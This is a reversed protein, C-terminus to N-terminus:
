YSSLFTKCYRLIRRIPSAWRETPQYCVVKRVQLKSVPQSDLTIYHMSGLPIVSKGNTDQLLIVLSKGTLKATGLCSSWWWTIALQCSLSTTVESLKSFCLDGPGNLISQLFHFTQVPSGLVACFRQSVTIKKLIPQIGQSTEFLILQWYKSLLSFNMYFRFSDEKGKQVSPWLGMLRSLTKFIFFLMVASNM